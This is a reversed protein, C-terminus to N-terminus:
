TVHRGGSTGTPRPREVIRETPRTLRITRVGFPQSEIWGWDRLINLYYRVTSTSRMGTISSLERLTPPRGHDGIYQEIQHYCKMARDITKGNMRANSM